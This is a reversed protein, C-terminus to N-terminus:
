HAVSLAKKTEASVLIPCFLIVSVSGFGFMRGFRATEASDPLKPLFHVTRGFIQYNRGFIRYNRGFIRCNKGFIEIEAFINKIM